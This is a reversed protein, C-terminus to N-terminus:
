RLRRFAARAFPQVTGWPTTHEERAEGALAYDPGLVVALQAADYRQVPLGSCSQPGDSAFTSLVLAAVLASAGGGVDLIRATPSIGEARLLDPVAGAIPTYWSVAAPGGRAYAADWHARLADVNTM